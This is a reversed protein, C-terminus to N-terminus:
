QVGPLERDEAALEAFRVNELLFLLGRISVFLCWYLCLASEPKEKEHKNTNM